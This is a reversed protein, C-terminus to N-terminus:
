ENLNKFNYVMITKKARIDDDLSSIIDDITDFDFTYYEEIDDGVTWDDNNIEVYSGVVIAEFVYEMLTTHSYNKYNYYSNLQEEEKKKLQELKKYAEIFLPNNQKEEVLEIFLKRKHEDLTDNETAIMNTTIWEILQPENTKVPPPNKVPPLNKANNLVAERFTKDYNKAQESQSGYEADVMEEFSNYVGVPYGVLIEWTNM